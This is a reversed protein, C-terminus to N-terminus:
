LIIMYINRNYRENENDNNGILNLGMSHINKISPHNKKHAYSMVSVYQNNKAFELHEKLILKHLGLGRYNLDIVTGSFKGIKKNELKNPLYTYEKDSIHHFASYAILKNNDKIGILRHNLIARRLGEEGYFSYTNTNASKNQLTLIDKIDNETLNEIIIKKM